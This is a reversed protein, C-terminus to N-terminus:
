LLFDDYTQMVEERTIGLYRLTETPSSHNLVKCIKEIPIGGDFLAKGRSKRMSHTSVKLGIMDGTSKLVKSVIGRSIPKNKARNCNVQFLWIDTPNERKRREIIDFAASNLRIAKAKDTKSEVINISRNKIDIDSYKLALLDSIRLSLNVGAKWIDAYIPSQKKILLAHILEVEDKSVADVINMKIGEKM